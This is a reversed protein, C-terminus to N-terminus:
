GIPVSNVQFIHGNKEFIKFSNKLVVNPYVMSSNPHSLWFLLKNNYKEAEKMKFNLEFQGTNLMPFM